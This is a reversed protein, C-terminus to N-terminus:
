SPHAIPSVSDGIRMALPPIKPGNTIKPNDPNRHTKTQNDAMDLEGSRLECIDLNSNSYISSLFCLDKRESLLGLVVVIIGGKLRKSDLIGVHDRITALEMCLQTSGSSGKEYM